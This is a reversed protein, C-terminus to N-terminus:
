FRKKLIKPVLEVSYSQIWIKQQKKIVACFQIFHYGIELFQFEKM